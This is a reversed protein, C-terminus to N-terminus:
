ATNTGKCRGPLAWILEVFHEAPDACKDVNMTSIGVRIKQAYRFPLRDTNVKQIADIIQVILETIPRQSIAHHLGAKLVHVIIEAHIPRLTEVTTFAHGWSKRICEAPKPTIHFSNRVQRTLRNM